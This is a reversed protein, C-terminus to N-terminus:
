FRRKMTEAERRFCDSWGRLWDAEQETASPIARLQEAIFEWAAMSKEPDGPLIRVFLTPDIVGNALPEPCYASFVALEACQAARDLDPIAARWVPSPSCGGESLMPRAALLWGLGVHSPEIRSALTWDLRLLTALMERTSYVAHPTKPHSCVLGMLDLLYQYVRNMPHKPVQFRRGSSRAPLVGQDCAPPWGLKKALNTLCFGAAGDRAARRSKDRWGGGVREGGPLHVTVTATWRDGPSDSTGLSDREGYFPGGWGMRRALAALKQQSRQMFGACARCGTCPRLRQGVQYGNLGRWYTDLARAHNFRELLTQGELPTEAVRRRAARKRAGMTM